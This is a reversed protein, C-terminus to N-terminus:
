IRPEAIAAPLWVAAMFAESVAAASDGASDWVGAGRWVLPAAELDGPAAELARLDM